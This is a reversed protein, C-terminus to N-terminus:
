GASEFANPKVHDPAPFTQDLTPPTLARKQAQYINQPLNSVAEELAEALDRGDSVLTPENDRYMRGSLEMEGLMM